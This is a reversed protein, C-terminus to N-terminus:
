NVMYLSEQEIVSIFNLKGSKLATLIGRNLVFSNLIYIKLLSIVVLFANM